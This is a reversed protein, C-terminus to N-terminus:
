PEAHRSHGVPPRGDARRSGVVHADFTNLIILDQYIALSRMQAAPRRASEIERRYEWIFDGTRADLAHVVHGPNAIYM